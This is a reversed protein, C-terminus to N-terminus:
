ALVLQFYSVLVCLPGAMEPRAQTRILKAIGGITTTETTKTIGTVRTIHGGTPTTITILIRGTPVRIRRGVGCALFGFM